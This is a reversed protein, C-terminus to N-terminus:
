QQQNLLELFKTGFLHADGPWRATLVNEDVVVFGHNLNNPNDRFVPLPGSIFDEPSALCRKVESEVTEQYTRYYDKLWLCTLAWAMLEQSALLATSKRGFLVSRGDQKKSRSLLVVGHCIAGIVKNKEFFHAVIIQLTESELYEIIGKAHGGPLLLADFQEVEIDSWKIPNLFAHSKLMEDYANQGNQDAQLVPALIGLSKGTLMLQDCEPKKADPTSFIVQVNNSALIKWPVAVETPDFDKRPLPILVKKKMM